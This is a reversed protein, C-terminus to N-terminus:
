EDSSGKPKVLKVVLEGRTVVPNDGQGGINLSQSPKGELRDFVRDISALDGNKAMSVLKACIHELQTVEYEVGENDVVTDAINLLDRLITKINRTGPKKGEPNGSQFPTGVPMGDPRKAAAKGSSKSVGSDQRLNYRSAVSIHM